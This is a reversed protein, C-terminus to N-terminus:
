PFSCADAAHPSGFFILELLHTSEMDIFTRRAFLFYTNRSAFPADFDTTGFAVTGKNFVTLEGKYNKQINGTVYLFKYNSM